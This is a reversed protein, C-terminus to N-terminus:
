NRAQAIYEGRYTVNTNLSTVLRAKRFFRSGVDDLFVSSRTVTTVPITSTVPSDNTTATLYLLDVWTSNADTVDMGDLSVQVKWTVTPTSGIAEVILSFAVRCADDPLRVGAHTNNGTTGTAALSVYSIGSM